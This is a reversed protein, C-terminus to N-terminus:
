AVRSIRRRAVPEMQLGQVALTVARLPEIKVVDFQRWTWATKSNGVLRRRATFAADDLLPHSSHLLTPDPQGDEDVHTLRDYVEATGTTIDRTSALSVPIGRESLRPALAAAGSFSDIIVGAPPNYKKTIRAVEDQVWSVGAEAAIIDVIIRGDKLLTAGALVALDRDATVELGLSRREVKVGLMTEPSALARLWIDSGIAADTTNDAWIGLRERKYADESMGRLDVEKIWDWTQFWGLSPNSQQVAELSQWDTTHTDASWECLLLHQNDDPQDVARDRVHRLVTSYDFGTSSTYWLQPSPKASLTPLLDSVLTEDIQFAEDLVVLDGTFGRGSGGQRALFDIRPGRRETGQKKLEISVNESSQSIKLVRSSLFDNAEIIDVLDRFAGRATKFKHATHIIQPDRSIFLSMLERAMLVINKGNQRPVILGVEFSAWRTKTSDLALANRLVLQQWPLLHLGCAEALDVALDGDTDEWQPAHFFSPTQVGVPEHPKLACQPIELRHDQVM